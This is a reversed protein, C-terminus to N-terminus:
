KLSLISYSIEKLKKSGRGRGTAVNIAAYLNYSSSFSNILQHSAEIFGHDIVFTVVQAINSILILLDPHAYM